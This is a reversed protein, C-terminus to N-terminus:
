EHKPKAPTLPAPWMTLDSKLVKNGGVKDRSKTQIKIDKVKSNLTKTAIVVLSSRKLQQEMNRNNNTISLVQRIKLQLPAVPNLVSYTPRIQYKSRRMKEKRKDKKMKEMVVAEENLETVVADVISRWKARDQAFHM